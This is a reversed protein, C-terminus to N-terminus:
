VAFFDLGLEQLRKLSFTQLLRKAIAGDKSYVVIYKENFEKEFTECWWELFKKVDPNKERYPKQREYETQYQKWNVIKINGVGDVKIMKERIMSKKSKRIADKSTMLADALQDDSYGINGTVTILGPFASDGALALLGSWIAREELDLKGLSGKRLSKLYGQVHVKIWLKRM